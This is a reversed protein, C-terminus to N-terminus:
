WDRTVPAERVQARSATPAASDPRISEILQLAQQRSLGQQQNKDSESEAEGSGPLRKAASARLVLALNRRIAEDGPLLLLAQELPALALQSQGDALLLTGCNFLAAARNEGELQHSAQDFLRAAEAARGNRSLREAERFLDHGRSDQGPRCAPIILLLCLFLGARRKDFIDGVPLWRALLLLITLGLVTATPVGRSSSKQAGWRTLLATVGPASDGGLIAGNSIATLRQLGPLELRSIVPRGNANQRPRGEADPVVAGAATGLPVVFVPIDADPRPAAAPMTREGDSFLLVAREGTEDRLCQQAARVAEEPASGPAQVMGPTLRDIFFRLAEHDATPPVQLIAEGAFPLLAFRGNPLGALLARLESKAHELRGPPPDAAAMSASVDVALALVPGGSESSAAPQPAIQLWLLLTLAALACADPFLRQLSQAPAGLNSLQRRSRREAAVLLAALLPILLVSV